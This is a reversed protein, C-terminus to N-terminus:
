LDIPKPVTIGRSGAFARKYGDLRMRANLLRLPGTITASRVTRSSFLHSVAQYSGEEDNLAVVDYPLGRYFRDLLVIPAIESHHRKLYDPAQDSPSVILLM